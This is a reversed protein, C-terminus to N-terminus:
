GGGTAWNERSLGLLKVEKVKSFSLCRVMGWVQPPQDSGMGQFPITM